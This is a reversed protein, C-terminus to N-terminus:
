CIAIEISPIHRLAEDEAANEGRLRINIRQRGGSIEPYWAAGKPHILRVLSNRKHGPICVQGADLAVTQWHSRARTIQMVVSIALEIPDLAATWRRIDAQQDVPAKQLWHTYAPLDAAALGGPVTSRQMVSLLLKPIQVEGSASGSLPQRASAIKELTVELMDTDIDPLQRLQELRDSERQLDQTLESWADARSLLTLLDCIVPILSRRHEAVSELKRFEAFLFELRLLARMREHLPHEYFRLNDPM